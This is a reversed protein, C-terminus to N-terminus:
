NMVVATTPCYLESDSPLSLKIVRYELMTKCNVRERYTPSHLRCDPCSLRFIAPEFQNFDGIELYMGTGKSWKACSARVDQIEVVWGQIKAKKIVLALCPLLNFFCCRTNINTVATTIKELIDSTITGFREEYEQEDKPPTVLGGAIMNSIAARYCQQCNYPLYKVKAGLNLNESGLFWNLDGVLPIPIDLFGSCVFNCYNKKPLIVTLISDLLMEAYRHLEQYASESMGKPINTPRSLGWFDLEAEVLEEPIGLKPVVLKGTRYFALIYKFVEPDRDFFIAGELKEAPAAVAKALVSEPYKSITSRRTTFLQGGVNLKIIDTM